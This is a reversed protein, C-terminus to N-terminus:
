SGSCRYLLLVLMALMFYPLWRPARIEPAPEATQTAAGQQRWHAARSADHWPSDPAELRALLKELCEPHGAQAGTELIEALEDPHSPSVGADQLLRALAACSEGLTTSDPNRIERRQCDAAKALERQRKREPKGTAFQELLLGARHAADAVGHQEAQQYKHMAQQPNPAIGWGNELCLGLNYTAHHDGQEAALQFQRCAGPYDQPGGIGNLQMYGLWNRASRTPWDGGRALAQELLQRARTQRAPDQDEALLIALDAMAAPLGPQEASGAARELWVVAQEADDAVGDGDRLARGLRLAAALDGAAYDAALKEVFGFRRGDPMLWVVEEGAMPQALFAENTRFARTLAYRTHEIASDSFAGHNEVLWRYEAPILTQGDADLVGFCSAAPPTEGTAEGAIEGAQVVLLLPTGTPEVYFPAVALYACPICQRKSKLNWIGVPPPDGATQVLLLERSRSVHNDQWQSPLEDIDDYHCPILERGNGDLLGRGSATGVAFQLEGPSPPPVDDLNHDRLNISLYVCPLCQRGARDFVGCHEGRQVVVIAAREDPCSIEDWEAALWPSGDAQLLGHKDQRSLRWGSFEEAWELEDYLPAAAYSGDTRLLGDRGGETVAALGNETFNGAAEFRPPIAWAGQRDLYGLLEGTRATAHGQDYDWLDDFSPLLFWSGDRRLMGMLGDQQVVALDDSFHWAEELCPELLTTATGDAALHLLGILGGRRVWLEARPDEDAPWIGEYEAPLLTKGPEEDADLQRVGFLGNEAFRQRDLSLDNERAIEWPDPQPVFDAFEEERPEDDCNRFYPHYAGLGGLGFDWCWSQWNECAEDGAMGLAKELAFSDQHAIAQEIAAWTANFEQQQRVIFEEAPMDYFWSYEDLNASFFLEVAVEHEALCQELFAAVARLHRPLAPLKDILPHQQLAEVLQRFRALAAQADAAINPTGADGFVRQDTIPAAAQGNALLVHWLRPINNNAEAVERRDEPDNQRSTLYLYSRNGM